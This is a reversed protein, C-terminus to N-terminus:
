REEMAIQYMAPRNPGRGPTVISILGEAALERITVAVQSKSWGSRAALYRTSMVIPNGADAHQALVALIDTHHQKM